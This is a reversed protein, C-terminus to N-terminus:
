YTTPTVPSNIISPIASRICAGNSCGNPCTYSYNLPVYGTIQGSKPECENKVLTSQNICYNTLLGKNGYTVGGGPMYRSKNQNEESGWTNDADICRSFICVKLNKDWVGGQFDCQTNTKVVSYIDSTNKISANPTQNAVVSGNKHMTRKYYPIIFIIFLLIYILFLIVGIIKPISLLKQTSLKQQTIEPNLFAQSDLKRYLYALAIATVNLSVILGIGLAFVGLINILGSVLGFLFIKFKIGKTIVSGRKLTETISSKKDVIFYQNFMYEYSWIIGPIIFLCYGGIIILVSLLGLGIWKPILRYHRYLESLNPKKGDALDLYIKISGLGVLLQIFINVISWINSLIVSWINSIVVNKQIFITLVNQLIYIILITVSFILIFKINNWFTIWGFSLAEKISFDNKKINPTNNAGESLSGTLSASQPNEISNQTNDV